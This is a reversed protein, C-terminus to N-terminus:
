VAKRGEKMAHQALDVPFLLKVCTEIEKDTLTRKNTYRMLQSSQNTVQEFIDFVLSNMINMAKRNIGKSEKSVQIEKLVKYIYLSFNERRRKKRIVQNVSNRRNSRRAM